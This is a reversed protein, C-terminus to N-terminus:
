YENEIELICVVVPEKASAAIANELSDAVIHKAANYVVYGEEKKSIAVTHIQDYLDNRNNIFTAIYDRANESAQDTRWLLRSNIGRGKLQKRIALPSTGIRAGLVAGNKEFDSILGAMYDSGSGLGREYLINYAAIVECGAYAMNVAGFKIQNWDNQNDIHGGSLLQGLLQENYRIHERRTSKPVYNFINLLWYIAVIVKGSVHTPIWKALRHIM